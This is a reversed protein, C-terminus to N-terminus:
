ATTKTKEVASFPALEPNVVCHHKGDSVRAGSTGAVIRPFGRGTKLLWALFCVLGIGTMLTRPFARTADVGMELLRPNQWDPAM